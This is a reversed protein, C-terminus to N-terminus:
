VGCGLICDFSEDEDDGANWLGEASFAVFELEWMGIPQFKM